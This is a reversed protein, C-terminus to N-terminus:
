LGRNDPLNSLIVRSDRSEKCIHSLDDDGVYETRGKSDKKTLYLKIESEDLNPHIKKLHELEEILERVKM